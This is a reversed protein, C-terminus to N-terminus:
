RSFAESFLRVVAYIDFIAAGLFSVGFLSWLLKRHEKWFIALGAPIGAIGGLTLGVQLPVIWGMVDAGAALSRGPFLISLIAQLFVAVVIGGGAILYFLVIHVLGWVVILSVGAIVQGTKFKQAHTAPTAPENM